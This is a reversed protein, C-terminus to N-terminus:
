NEDSKIQNELVSENALSFMCDTIVRVSASEIHPNAFQWPGHLDAVRGFRVPGSVRLNPKPKVFLKMNQDPETQLLVLVIHLLSHQKRLHLCVCM